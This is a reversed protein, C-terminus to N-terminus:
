FELSALATLPALAMLGQSTVEACHALSLTALRSLQSLAAVGVDTIEPCRALRLSTLSTVKMLNLPPLYPDHPLCALPYCHAHSDAPVHTSAKLILRM